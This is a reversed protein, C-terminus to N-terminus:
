DKMLWEHEDYTEETFSIKHKKNYYRVADHYRTQFKLSELTHMQGGDVPDGGMDSLSYAADRLVLMESVQFDGMPTPTIGGDEPDEPPSGPNMAQLDFINTAPPRAAQEPVPARLDFITTALRDQVPAEARVERVPAEEVPISPREVPGERRARRSALAGSEVAELMRSTMRRSRESIRVPSPEPSPSRPVLRSRKKGVRRGGACHGTGQFRPPDSRVSIRQTVTGNWGADVTVTTTGQVRVRNRQAPTTFFMRPM